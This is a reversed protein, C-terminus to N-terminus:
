PEVREGRVAQGSGRRLAREGQAQRLSVPGTMINPARLTGQPELLKDKDNARAGGLTRGPKASQSGAPVRGRPAAHGPHRGAEGRVGSLAAAPQALHAQPLPILQEGTMEM